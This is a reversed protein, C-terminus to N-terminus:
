AGVSVGLILVLFLAGAVVGVFSLLFKYFTNNLMSV